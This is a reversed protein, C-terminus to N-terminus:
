TSQNSQDNAEGFGLVIRSSVEVIDQWAPQPCFSRWSSFFQHLTLNHWKVAQGVQLFFVASTKGYSTESHNWSREASPFCPVFCRGRRFNVERHQKNVFNKLLCSIRVRKQPSLTWFKKCVEMQFTTLSSTNWPWFAKIRSPLWLLIRRRARWSCITALKTLPFVVQHFRSRWAWFSRGLQVMNFGKKGGRGRWRWFACPNPISMKQWTFVSVKRRVDSFVDEFFTSKRFWTTQWRESARLIVHFSGHKSCKQEAWSSSLCDEMLFMQHIFKDESKAFRFWGQKPMSM